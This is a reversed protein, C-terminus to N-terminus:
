INEKKAYELAKQSFTLSATMLHNKLLDLSTNQLSKHRVLCQGNVYVTDVQSANASYVLASYSDYLPYMNVSNTEVIIFDAKKNVELSGVMHDIHLAKAGQITALALIDRAPFASRDHNVTKHVCAIMKLMSFLELTNGSSPGDTGLGVLVHHNLLAQLPMVGKGAKLNSVLCHAVASQKEKLLQIDHENIHICHAAVLRHDLLGYHNLFEIPTMQYTKQFYDMEYDLESVHFSLPVDFKEALQHAKQLHKLDNTNTAHPAVFPVILPHNKWKPIFWECYDLGGYPKESDCSAFDVITEGVFARMKMEDAAKAVEDEFYYMDMFTTIGSLLMEAMAYLSSHYVLDASMYKSELPFLFRRLRDPCDDGLGRFPVMGLHTHTNIMGPLLIGQHGDICQDYDGSCVQGIEIINEDEIIMQGNEFVDFQENMTLITVNKILTKM